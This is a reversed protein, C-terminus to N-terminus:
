HSGTLSCITPSASAAFITERGYRAGHTSQDYYACEMHRRALVVRWKEREFSEIVDNLPLEIPRRKVAWKPSKSSLFDLPRCM